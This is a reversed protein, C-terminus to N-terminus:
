ATVICFVLLAIMIVLGVFGLRMAFIWTHEKKRAIELERETLSPDPELGAPYEVGDIVIYTAGDREVVEQQSLWARYEEESMRPKSSKNRAM